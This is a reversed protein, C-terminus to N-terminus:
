VLRLIDDEGGDRRVYMLRTHHDYSMYEIVIGHQEIEVTTVDGRSVDQAGSTRLETLIARFTV